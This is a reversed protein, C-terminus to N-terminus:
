ISKLIPKMIIWLLHILSEYDVNRFFSKLYKEDKNKLAKKFKTVKYFFDLYKQNGKIKSKFDIIGDFSAYLFCVNKFIVKNNKKM